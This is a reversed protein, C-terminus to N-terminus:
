FRCSKGLVYILIPKTVLEAGQVFSEHGMERSIQKVRMHEKKLKQFNCYQRGTYRKNTSNSM